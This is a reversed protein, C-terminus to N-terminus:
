VSDAKRLKYRRASEKNCARCQRGGNARIYTNEANLPHGNVCHDTRLAIAACGDSRALNVRVPVAELHAPNVCHRVRCLHDIQLDSPIPGILAEFAVRHAYRTKSSTTFRGYGDQNKNSSWLLCPTPHGTDAFVAQSWFRHPLGLITTM